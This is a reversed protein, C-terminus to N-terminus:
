VAQKGLANSGTPKDYKNNNQIIDKVSSIPEQAIKTKFVELTDKPIQLSFNQRNNNVILTSPKDSSLLEYIRTDNTKYIYKYESLINNPEQYFKIM